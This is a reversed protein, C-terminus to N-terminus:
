VKKLPAEKIIFFPLSVQSAAGSLRGAGGGAEGGEEGAAGLVGSSLSFFAGLHPRRRRKESLAKGREQVRPAAPVFLLSFALSLFAM